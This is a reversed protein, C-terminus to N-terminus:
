NRIIPDRPMEPAQMAKSLAWGPCECIKNEMQVVFREYLILFRIINGFRECVFLSLKNM